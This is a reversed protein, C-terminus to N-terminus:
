KVRRWTKREVALKVAQPYVGFKAAVDKQPVGRACLRRIEKVKKVTLKSNGNREGFAKLNNKVAHEENGKHTLYELNTYWNHTKITDIHNVEKGPPCPGIFALAVIKHLYDCSRKKYRYLSVTVYRQTYGKLLEKTERNRFRGLSSVEYYEYVVRWEERM